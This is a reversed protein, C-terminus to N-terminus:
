NTYPYSPPVPLIKKKKDLAVLGVSPGLCWPSRTRPNRQQTAAGSKVPKLIRPFVGGGGSMKVPHLKIVCVGDNLQELILCPIYLALLTKVLLTLVYSELVFCASASRVPLVWVANAVELSLCFARNRWQRNILSQVVVAVGQSVDEEWNLEAASKGKDYM